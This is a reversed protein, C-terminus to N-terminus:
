PGEPRSHFERRQAHIRDVANETTAENMTVRYAREGDGMVELALAVTEEDLIM